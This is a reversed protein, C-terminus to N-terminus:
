VSFPQEQEFDHNAAGVVWYKPAQDPPMKRIIARAFRRYTGKYTGHRWVRLLTGTFLGNFMGDSSLQNDQCGSILLVTAGITHKTKAAKAIADYHKRHKDYTRRIADVPMARYRAVGEGELVPVLNAPHNSRTAHYATKVVTGSHCSDSLVVIRVGAKFSSWMKYNEDDIWQSDYFCWTEDLADEEEDDLDPIQGGHGSYSLFFIDGKELKKAASEIAKQVKERTADKTLLVHAEFGKEKALAEMDRADAECATLPGSWGEYHRPDVANLGIHLSLGRAM